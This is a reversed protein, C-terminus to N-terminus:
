IMSIIILIGIGVIIGFISFIITPIAFGKIKKRELGEKKAKKHMKLAIISLILCVFCVVLIVVRINKFLAMQEETIEAEGVIDKFAQITWDIPWFGYTETSYIGFIFICSILWIVVNIYLIYPTLVCALVFNFLYEGFVVLDFVIALILMLFTLCFAIISTTKPLYREKM